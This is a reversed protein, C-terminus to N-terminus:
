PTESTVRHITNSIEYIKQIIYLKQKVYDYQVDKKPKTKMMKPTLTKNIDLTVQHM